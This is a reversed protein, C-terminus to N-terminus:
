GTATLNVPLPGYRLLTALTKASQTTFSGFVDAGNDGTIGDPYQKYDVFPVSLLVNDLTIAFHQNLAEGLSSVLSGRAAVDVQGRRDEGLSQV